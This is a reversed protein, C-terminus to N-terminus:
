LSAAIGDLLRDLGYAFREEPDTYTRGGEVTMRTFLPYDGSQIVSQIYPVQMAMWQGLDLGTRRLAEAEALESAVFGNVYAAVTGVMTLMGDIGLGLGDVMGLATEMLRIQNPGAAQRAAALPALWPHARIAQRSRVALGRM